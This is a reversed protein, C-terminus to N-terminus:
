KVAELDDNLDNDLFSIIGEIRTFMSNLSNRHIILFDLSFENVNRELKGLLDRTRERNDKPLTSLLSQHVESDKNRLTTRFTEVAMYDDKYFDIIHKGTEMSVNESSLLLTSNSLGSQYGGDSLRNTISSKWKNELELLLSSVVQKIHNVSTDFDKNKVRLLEIAKDRGIDNLGPNTLIGNLEEDIQKAKALLNTFLSKLQTKNMKMEEQLLLSM